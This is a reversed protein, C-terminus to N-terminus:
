FANRLYYRAAALAIHLCPKSPIGQKIAFICHPFKEESAICWLKKHTLFCCLHRLIPEPIPDSVMALMSAPPSGGHIPERRTESGIGSGM